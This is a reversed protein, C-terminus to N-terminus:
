TMRHRYIYHHFIHIRFTKAKIQLKNVQHIREERCKQLYNLNINVWCTSM